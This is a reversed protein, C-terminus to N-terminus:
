IFVDIAEELRWFPVLRKEKPWLAVGAGGLVPDGFGERRGYPNDIDYTGAVLWVRLSGGVETMEIAKQHSHGVAAIDAQPWLDFMLNRAAQAPHLRSYGRFRHSLALRYIQEGVKLTLLGGSSLLPVALDPLFSNAFSVGVRELFGEHNGNVVTLLLGARELEVLWQKVAAAQEEPTFVQHFVGAAARGLAPNFFPALDGLTIVYVGHERVLEMHQRFAPYDCYLSFLHPDSVFLFLAPKEARIAVTAERQETQGQQCVRSLEEALSLNTRYDISARRKNEFIVEKLAPESM